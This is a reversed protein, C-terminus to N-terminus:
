ILYAILNSTVWHNVLVNCILRYSINTLALAICYIYVCNLFCLKPGMLATHHTLNAFVYLSIWVFVRIVDCECAPCSPTKLTEEHKASKYQLTLFSSYTKM